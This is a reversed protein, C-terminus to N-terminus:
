PETGAPRTVEVVRFMGMEMHNLIHCHMAWRGPEDATLLLSLREAPKVNWTHKKALQKSGNELEVFMGHLHIPHEMMTDNVFMLRVREGYTLQIPERADSFGKGDFSWLYREMNGTLHLEIERGPARLDHGPVLSTLDSYLLVRRGDGGLGVGPEELRSKTEMPVM